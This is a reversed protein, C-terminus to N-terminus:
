LLCFVHTVFKLPAHAILISLLIKTSLSAVIEIYLKKCIALKKETYDLEQKM